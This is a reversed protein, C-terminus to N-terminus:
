GMETARERDYNDLPCDFAWQFMIGKNTFIEGDRLVEASSPDFYVYGVQKHGSVWDLTMHRAWQGSRVWETLQHPNSYKLIGKMSM